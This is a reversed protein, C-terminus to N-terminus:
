GNHSSPKRSKRTFPLFPIALAVLALFAMFVYYVGRGYDYLFFSFPMGYGTNLFMMDTTRFILNVVIAVLAFFVMTAYAKPYDRWKPVYTKSLALYLSFIVMVGHFSFSVLPFYNGTLPFWVDTTGLVTSPFSLMALAACFSITYTGPLLFDRFKGKGFAVIPFLYLPVSCLQFPLAWLPYTGGADIIARVQKLIELLLLIVTAIKLVRGHNKVKFVKLLLFLVVGVLILTASTGILHKPGFPIPAGFIFPL